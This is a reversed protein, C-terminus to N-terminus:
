PLDEVPLWYYKLGNFTRTYKYQQAKLRQLMAFKRKFDSVISIYEAHSVAQPSAIEMISYGKLAAAAENLGAVTNMVEKYGMENMREDTIDPIMSQILAKMARVYPERDNTQIVAADNVPALREILANLENSSMFVVPKFFARGSKHMKRSFGKFTMLSNAKKIQEYKEPGLKLKLYEEDIDVSGSSKNVNFGGANLSALLVIQYDVSEACYMIAEQMLSSLKAVEMQQGSLPFSHSGVYLCSKKDNVLQYGDKVEAIQVKMASNLKHYKQELSTKMLYSLQTNFRAFADEAGRRVQFGMIHVNKDVLKKVLDDRNIKMDDPDNGCDGVVLLINSQDEKFGLRNLAVDIGNYMAEELTRDARASKIGYEGGKDLFVDLKPNNPSTLQIMETAYEGDSYDRYIVVGVKVNYKNSFFKRGEKIAEKVAPYYAEMSSTGDILIGININTMEKLVQESYGLPSTGDGDKLNSGHELPEGGPTGFTSCNYLDDTGNDLLPFRLDDPNMRYLHKEYKASQKRTFPITTVCNDLDERDYINVKVNEDAFYEVDKHNWTPEICSRQNWAVYSQEAVWGALMQDSRGELTHTRALLSLNGERKMVFYFNMDTTLRNFKSKNKPNRYMKGLDAGAEEDLNVCLLAKNYIGVSNAPCSHWILLNKMPVWGKCEAYQSIMPYAIDAQPETYVMAYGDKIQAIRLQENMSLTKYRATREPTTYTVNDDRDSYVVWFTKNRPVKNQGYDASKELAAADDELLVGSSLLIEPYFVKCKDPLTPQALAASVGSLILSFILIIKKMARNYKDNM